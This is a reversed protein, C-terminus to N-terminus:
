SAPCPKLRQKILEVVSEKSENGVYYNALKKHQKFMLLFWILQYDLTRFVLPRKPEYKDKNKEFEAPMETWHMGPFLHHGIHYGDNFCRKNYISDVVTISNQYDCSPDESAVFAHQTWNGAMLGFWCILTPVFFVTLTGAPNFNYALALFSYFFTYAFIIKFAYDKRKQKFFYLPLEIPLLLCFRLFYHLWGLFSDRQYKETSSLDEPGNGEKHHMKIHHHFYLLPPLGFLLGVVELYFNILKKFKKKWPNRHCVNHLMLLHPGLFFIFTAWYIVRLVLSETESFFMFAAFPVFLFTTLLIQKLFPIDRQDKLVKKSISTM